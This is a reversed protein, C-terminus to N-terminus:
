SGQGREAGGIGARLGRIVALVARRPGRAVDAAAAELRLTEAGFGTKFRALGPQDDAAGGLNFAARGRERLAEAVAVILHQSAGIRMGEPATGASHYYASAPAHLVLVSAVVDGDLLAQFLSGAGTGLFSRTVAAAEPTAGISEGRAERRVMSSRMLGAHVRADQPDSTERVGVGGKRSRALNRRHNTSLAKEPSWTTLDLRYERRARRASEGALRPLVIGGPSGFSELRLRTVDAKRCYGLLADWLGDAPPRGPSSVVELDCRLRGRAVYGVCGDVVTEGSEVLFAVPLHGRQRRAQAYAVTHFPSEPRARCLAELRDDSPAPVVSFNFV